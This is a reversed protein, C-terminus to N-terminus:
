IFDTGESKLKDVDVVDLLLTEGVQHEIREKLLNVPTVYTAVVNGLQEHGELVVPTGNTGGLIMGVVKGETNIVPGGSDGRDSFVDDFNSIVTFESTTIGGISAKGYVFDIRGLTVGTRRGSKLVQAGEVIDETGRVYINGNRDRPIWRRKEGTDYRLINRGQRSPDLKILAWDVNVTLGNYEAHCLESREVSGFTTNKSRLDNLDEEVDKRSLNRHCKSGVDIMALDECLAEEAATFDSHSPQQVTTVPVSQPTMSDNSECVGHHVTLCYQDARDGFRFYCGLSFSRSSDTVSLSSGLYPSIQHQRFHFTQAQHDKHAYSNTTGEYCFVRRISKCALSEFISLISRADPITLKEAWVISCPVSTDWEYGVHTLHVLFSGYGGTKLFDIIRQSVHGEFEKIADADHRTFYKLVPSTYYGQEFYPKRPAL